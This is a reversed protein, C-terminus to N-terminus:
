SPVRRICIPNFFFFRVLPGMKLLPKDFFKRRFSNLYLRKKLAFTGINDYMAGLNVYSQLMDWDISLFFSLFTAPFFHLTASCYSWSNRPIFCRPGAGTLSLFLPILQLVLYLFPIITLIRTHEEGGWPVVGVKEPLPM